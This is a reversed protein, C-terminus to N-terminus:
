TGAYIRSLRRARCSLAYFFRRLVYKSKIRPILEPFLDTTIIRIKETYGRRPEGEVAACQQRHQNRPLASMAAPDGRAM